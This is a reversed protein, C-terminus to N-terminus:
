YGRLIKWPQPVISICIFLQFNSPLPSYFFWNCTGWGFPYHCHDHQDYLEMPRSDLWTSSFPPNCFIYDSCSYTSKFPLLSRHSFTPFQITLWKQVLWSLKKPFCRTIQFYICKACVECNYPENGFNKWKQWQLQSQNYNSQNLNNSFSTTHIPTQKAKCICGPWMKKCMHARMQLFILDPLMLLHYFESVCRCLM